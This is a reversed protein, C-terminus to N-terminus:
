LSQRANRVQVTSSVLMRRLGDAPQFSIDAYSYTAEDTFGLEPRDARARLWLRAAFVQRPDLGPTGASVYGDVAGDADSDLGIQVQLDEIGSVLEEDILAPGADLRVRRLSPVAAAGASARNVYYAATEVEHVPDAATFGAPLPSGGVFLAGALYSSVLYLRGNAIAGPATPTAAAHRVVLIDTGPRRMADDICGAFPNAAGVQAEGATEVRVDVNSYYRAYCDNAPASGPPLPSVPDSARGTIAATEKTQAWYGARRLDEVLLQLAVNATEQVRAVTENARYTATGNAHIALAGGILLLGLASAIMLEVLGFGREGRTARADSV